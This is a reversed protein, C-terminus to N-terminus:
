KASPKNEKKAAEEAKKAAEEEAIAKAIDAEEQAKKAAEEEEEEEKAKAAKQEDTLPATKKGVAKVLAGNKLAILVSPTPKCEVVKKGIVTIGQDVIHFISTTDNLKVKLLPQQNAAKKVSKNSM